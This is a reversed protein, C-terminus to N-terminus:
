QNVAKAKNLQTEHTKSCLTKSGLAWHETGLIWHGTSLAWYGTSLSPTMRSSFFIKQSIIEYVPPPRVSKM